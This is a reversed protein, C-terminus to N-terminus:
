WLSTLVGSCYRAVLTADMADIIGDFDVDASLVSTGSLVANGVAHSAIAESDATTVLWDSNADGMLYYTESVKNLSVDVGTALKLVSYTVTIYDAINSINFRSDFRLQAITGASTIQNDSDLYACIVVGGYTTNAEWSTSADPIASGKLVGNLELMDVDYTVTIVANAIYSGMEVNIDLAYNNVKDGETVYQLAKYVNLRGSTAVKGELSDLVDVSSLIAEKLQMTTLNPNYSLLLAATGSVFPAALSTGGTTTYSSYYEAVIIDDGPAAIDVSTIGYNSRTILEDANNTAAVCIINEFDYSAPYSKSDDINKAQNGAAVIVLGPYNRIASQLSPNDKVRLSLNIIPINEKEADSIAAIVASTKPSGNDDVQMPVITVDQAIGSMGIGNNGVAGIVSAVYTGHKEMDDNTISNRNVYDYGTTLNGVLDEHENVGSDIVGVKVTNSGTELDWAEYLDVDDYAYYSSYLRPDNTTTTEYEGIYNVDVGYIDSRTELDEVAELVKDKGTEELHLELIQRFEVKSLYDEIWEDSKDTYTIDVVSAINDCEPFDEPTWVKNIVSCEHKFSLLVVDDTFDDELTATSYIQVDGIESATQVENEAAAVNLTTLMPTAVAMVTVLSLIRKKMGKRGKMINMEVLNGM